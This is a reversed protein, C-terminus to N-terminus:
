HINTKWAVHRPVALSDSGRDPFRRHFVPPHNALEVDVTIPLSVEGTVTALLTGNENVLHVGIVVPLAKKVAVIETEALEAFVERNLAKPIVLDANTIAIPDAIRQKFDGLGAYGAVADAEAHVLGAHRSQQDSVVPRSEVKAYQLFSFNTGAILNADLAGFIEMHVNEAPVGWNQLGERMSQLFASPGCLYFHSTQPVGIKQLLSLDVHGPADFDMELQDAADPRSYMIYSRGGPIQKLLSHSEQAFPHNARNRTGYIWWVQRPSKETALAQLMSLVPTAGVGASLLVVPNKGPRLVFTGRPASVQM